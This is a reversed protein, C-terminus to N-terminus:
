TIDRSRTLFAGVVTAVVGYALLILTAVWWPPAGAVHDISTM